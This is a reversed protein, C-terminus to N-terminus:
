TVHHLLGNDDEFLSRGSMIDLGSVMSPGEPARAEADHPPADVQVRLEYAPRRDDDDFVLENATLGLTVTLKRIAELNPSSAGDPREARPEEAQPRCPVSSPVICSLVTNVRDLAL